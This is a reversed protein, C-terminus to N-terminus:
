HWHWHSNHPLLGTLSAEAGLAVPMDMAGGRCVVATECVSECLCRTVGLMAQPKIARAIAVPWLSSAAGSAERNGLVAERESGRQEGEAFSKYLGLARPGKFSFIRVEM